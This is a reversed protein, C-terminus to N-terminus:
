MVNESGSSTQSTVLPAALDVNYAGLTAVPLVSTRVLEGLNPLRGSAIVESVEEGDKRADLIRFVDFIGQKFATSLGGAGGGM